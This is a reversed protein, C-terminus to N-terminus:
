ETVTPIFTISGARTPNFCAYFYGDEPIRSAWSGVTAADVVYTAGAKISPAPKVLLAANNTSPIFDCTEAIYTPVTSTGEWKITLDYGVFDAYRLRYIVSRSKAAIRQSVNPYIMLSQNSCESADWEDIAVPTSAPCSFRVYLFDGTAQKNINTFQAESLYITQTEGNSESFSTHLINTGGVTPEFDSTNSIYM